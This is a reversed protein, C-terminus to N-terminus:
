RQLVDKLLAKNREVRKGQELFGALESAMLDRLEELNERRALVWAGLLILRHTRERRAMEAKESTGRPATVGKHGPDGLFGEVAKVNREGVSKSRHSALWKRIDQSLRAHVDPKHRCQAVLFGGLLAKRRADRARRGAYHAARREELLALRSWRRRESGVLEAFMALIEDSRVHVKFFGAQRALRNLRRDDRTRVRDIEEDLKDLFELDADVDDPLVAEQAQSMGSTAM